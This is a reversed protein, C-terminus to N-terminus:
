RLAWAVFRVLCVTDYVIAVGALSYCIAIVDWGYIRCEMKVYEVIRRM